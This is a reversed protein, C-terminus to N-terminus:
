PITEYRSKVNSLLTIEGARIDVNMGTSYTISAGQYITVPELTEAYEKKPSLLLRTTSFKTPNKHTNEDQKIIVNGTLEIMEGDDVTVGSLAHARWAPQGNKFMTVSLEDLQTIGKEEFQYAHKALTKYAIQGDENFSKQVLGNVITDPLRNSSMPNIDRSQPAYDTYWRLLASILLLTLSGLIVLKRQDM